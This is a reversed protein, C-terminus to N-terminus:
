AIIEDYGCKALYDSLMTKTLRTKIIKKKYNSPEEWKQVEGKSFWVWRADKLAHLIRISKGKEWRTFESLSNEFYRIKMATFKNTEIVHELFPWGNELCTIVKIYKEKNTISIKLPCCNYSQEVDGKVFQYEFDDGVMKDITDKFLHESVGTIVTFEM